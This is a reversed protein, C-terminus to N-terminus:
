KRVEYLNVKDSGGVSMALRPTIRLNYPCYKEKTALTIGKPSTMVAQQIKSM